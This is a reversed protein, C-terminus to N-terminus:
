NQGIGASASRPTEMQRSRQANQVTAPGTQLDDAQMRSASGIEDRSPGASSGACAPTGGGEVRNLAIELHRRPWADLRDRRPRRRPRRIRQSGRRRRQNSPSGAATHRERGLGDPEGAISIGKAVSRAWVAESVGQEAASRRLPTPRRSPTRRLSSSPLRPKRPRKWGELCMRARPSGDGRRFAARRSDANSCRISSRPTEGVRRRSAQDHHRLPATRRAAVNRPPRLRDRSPGAGSM